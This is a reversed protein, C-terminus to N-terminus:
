AVVLDLTLGQAAAGNLMGEVTPGQNRVPPVVFGANINSVIGLAQGTKMHLIPGGSDGFIIPSEITYRQSTDSYMVGVRKERTPTTTAFGMGYGSHQVIDGLVTESRTTHGSPAYHGLVVPSTHIHKDADVKLFAYDLTHDMFVVTAFAGYTTTRVRDGVNRVCHAATSFFLDGAHSGTGEFLFSLTCSGISTTIRDGPQIAAAGAAVDETIPQVPLLLTTMLLAAAIALVRM